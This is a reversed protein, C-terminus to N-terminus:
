KIKGTLAYAWTGIVEHLYQRLLSLNGFSFKFSAFSFPGAMYSAPVPTVSMGANLYVLESRTLHLASTSLFILEPAPQIKKLEEKVALAEEFTNRCAATVFIREKPIGYELAMKKMTLGENLLNERNHDEPLGSSFVYHVNPLTRSWLLPTLMREYSGGIAFQGLDTKYFAVGGSLVVIAVPRAGEAQIKKRMDSETLMPVSQERQHVLFTGLPSALILFFLLPVLGLLKTRKSKPFFLLGYSAMFLIVMIVEPSIFFNFVRSLFVFM